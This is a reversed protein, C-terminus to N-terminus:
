QNLRVRILNSNVIFALDTLNQNVVNTNTVGACLSTRCGGGTLATPNNVFVFSGGLSILDGATVKDMQATSLKTPEALAVGSLAILSVTAFIFQKMIIGGTAPTECSADGEL